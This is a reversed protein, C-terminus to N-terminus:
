PKGKHWEKNCLDSKCNGLHDVYTVGCGECIVRTYLEHKTEMESQLGELDGQEDPAACQNCFEAM